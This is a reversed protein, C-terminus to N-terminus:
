RRIIRFYGQDYKRIRVTLEHQLEIEDEGVFDDVFIYSRELRLFGGDQWVKSKWQISGSDLVLSDTKALEFGAPLSLSWSERHVPRHRLDVNEGCAISKKITPRKSWFSRPLFMEDGAMPVPIKSTASVKLVLQDRWQDLGTVALNSSVMPHTKPLLHSDITKKVEAENLGALTSRWRMALFSSAEYTLNLHFYGDGDLEGAAELLGRGPDGAAEPINMLEVSGERILLVPSKMDAPPVLGAPCHDMTGDLFIGGAGDDAWAIEHNFQTMSPVKSNIRRDDDSLVLVPYAEIDCVRLMSILLTALGKCDGFGLEFVEAAPVPIMSGVGEFLGLYRCRKQVDGYILDIKDKTSEVGETLALARAKLAPSPNFADEIRDIYAKGVSAWSNGVVMSGSSLEGCKVLHLALEVTPYWGKCEPIKGESDVGLRWRNLTRFNGEEITHSLLRKGDPSGQAGWVLEHDRPFLVEIIAERMPFKKEGMSQSGLGFAGRMEYEWYIRVRDGVRLGPIMTHSVTGDLTVVGNYQETWEIWSLDNKKLKRQEGSSYIQVEIKKFRMTPNHSIFLSAAQELQGKDQISYDMVEKVKGYLGDREPDYTLDYGVYHQNILLEAEPYAAQFEAVTKGSVKEPLDVGDAVARLPLLCFLVLFLIHFHVKM